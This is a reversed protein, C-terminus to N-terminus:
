IVRISRLEEIETESYGLEAMIQQTHEGLTPPRSRIEGPTESLEVPTRMLPAPTDLGPYETPQFLGKAAIHPDDLVQQPSLVPGAPLRVEEMADLVEQSTREACWQALRASILEGNDGRTIDDKFRPDDLWHDEGMLDAWRKFLPGGVSQVLVWGDKTKFTDAPASTQSRNLSAVRNRKIVAQEIATGNMMTLATNFLSGEVVQGKGSNQREYLAAMTGFAALSATGFDIFPAYAKVPQDPTGSMYMNGSMAQGLGDFGVRNSYPGGRGFASIMTLIIDPKTAVLSDYDLGMAQLTDPPLNAVVVDATAVLKKVIERGEPKMPNLTMCLKNRAMQMFLAGDGTKTIPSLFRDESGDVKEIRIVEAGMDGLLTGCFPGAIYRGFDLVRIGQLVKSM